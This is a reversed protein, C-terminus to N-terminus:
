SLSRQLAIVTGQLKVNAAPVLFPRMAPNAPRLEIMDGHRYYRKVTAEDDVLAVVVPRDALVAEAARKCAGAARPVARQRDVVKAM